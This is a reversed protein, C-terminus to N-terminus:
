HGVRRKYISTTYTRYVLIFEQRSAIKNRCGGTTKVNEKFIIKSDRIVIIGSFHITTSANKLRKFQRKISIFRKLDDLFPAL